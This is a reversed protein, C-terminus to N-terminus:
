KRPDGQAPLSEGKARDALAKMTARPNFLAKQPSVEIGPLNGARLEKRLWESSVNLMRGMTRSECVQPMRNATRM